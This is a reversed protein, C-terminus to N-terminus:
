GVHAPRLAEAHHLAARTTEGGAPLLPLRVGATPIVGRAHLVAKVITPNPEAFLAAALEALRHGLARARVADGSRWAEVLEVFRETAVHASALIAGHAGLALLPSVFVDDGGLVAFGAPPDAMLAVTDEDIGGVAYKVGVVGPLAALRRLAVASLSQGTRYPVHYIVVPVPSGGALRRFHALVGAEGPRTFPPVLSLAAVVEPRDRLADLEAPTNAGVLLAAGRERCVRAVTDLVARREPGTLAAPEGTTGLAVVGTAGAALVQRALAELADLAVAGTTDFPTILPVYLGTLTM